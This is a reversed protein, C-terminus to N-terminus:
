SRRAVRGLFSPLLFYGAAIVVGVVAVPKMISTYSGLLSSGVSEATAQWGKGQAYSELSSVDAQLSQTDKIHQDMRGMLNVSNRLAQSVSGKIQNFLEVIRTGMTLPNDFKFVESANVQTKLDNLQSLLTVGQQKISDYQTALGNAKAVIAAARSRVEDKPSNQQAQARAKSDQITAGTTLFTGVKAELKTQADNLQDLFQKKLADGTNTFFDLIGSVNAGGRTAPRPDLGALDENAFMNAQLGRRSGFYM